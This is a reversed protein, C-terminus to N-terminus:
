GGLFVKLLLFIIALGVLIVVVGGLSFNPMIEFTMVGELVNGVWGFISPLQTVKQPVSVEAVTYNEVNYTGNETITIKESDPVDPIITQSVDVDISVRAYDSVDYSFTGNEFIDINLTDTPTNDIVTSNLLSIIRFVPNYDISHSLETNQNNGNIYQYTEKHNIDYFWELNLGVSTPCSVQWEGIFYYWDYNITDEAETLSQPNFTFYEASRKSFVKTIYQSYRFGSENGYVLTGSVFIDYAATNNPRLRFGDVYTYSGGGEPTFAEGTVIGQGNHVNRAGSLMRFGITNTINEVPWAYNSSNASINPFKQTLGSASQTSIDGHASYWVPYYASYVTNNGLQPFYNSAVQPLTIPTISYRSYNTGDIQLLTTSSSSVEYYIMNTYSYLQDFEVTMGSTGSTTSGPYGLSGDVTPSYSAFIPLTLMIVIISTFLIAIVKKM